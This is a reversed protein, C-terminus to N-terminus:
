RSLAVGEPTTTQQQAVAPQIRAQQAALAAAAPNITMEILQGKSPNFCRWGAGERQIAKVMFYVTGDTGRKIDILRGSYLQRPLGFEVTARRAEAIARATPEFAAQYRVEVLSGNMQHIAGRASPVSDLRVVGNEVERAGPRGDIETRWIEFMRVAETATLKLEM